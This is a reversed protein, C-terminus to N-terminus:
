DLKIADFKPSGIASNILMIKRDLGPVTEFGMNKYYSFLKRFCKAKDQELEDYQMNQTFAESSDHIGAELQIPFCKLAFLACGDIFNNYLDKIVRKGISQGRFDPLIEIRGLILINPEHLQGKFHRDLEEKWDSVEFDYVEEGIDMTIQHRDFIVTPDEGLEAALGLLLKHAAIRGVEIYEGPNEGYKAIEGTIDQCYRGDEMYNIGSQFSYEISIAPELKSLLNRTMHNIKSLQLYGTLQKLM